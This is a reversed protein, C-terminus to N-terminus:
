VVSKRDLQISNLAGNADHVRAECQHIWERMRSACLLEADLKGLSRRDKLFAASGGGAPRIEGRLFRIRGEQPLDATFARSAFATLPAGSEQLTMASQLAAWRVNVADGERCGLLDLANRNSFAPRGNSDILVLGLDMSAALAVLAVSDPTDGGDAPGEM